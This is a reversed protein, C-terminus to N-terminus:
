TGSVMTIVAVSLVLMIRRMSSRTKVVQKLSTTQGVSKEWELTDVIEKFQVLVVPDEFNGDAHTLAIVELAEQRRGKYVLWRPSEPIFPLIGISLVAFLAQFASPMRWAWTSTMRGSGYTIGAAILGGVRVRM